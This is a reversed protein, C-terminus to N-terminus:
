SKAEVLSKPTALGELGDLRDSPKSRRNGQRGAGLGGGEGVAERYATITIHRNCYRSKTQQHTELDRGLVRWPSLSRGNAHPNVSTASCLGILRVSGRVEKLVQGELHRVHGSGVPPAPWQGQYLACVLPRLVLQFEFNLVHASVEVGVCRYSGSIM